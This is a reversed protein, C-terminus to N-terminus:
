SEDQKDNLAGPAGQSEGDITKKLEELTQLLLHFQKARLEVRTKFVEHEQSLADNEEMLLKIKRELSIRSEMANIQKAVNEYEERYAKQKTEIKLQRKAEEIDMLTKGKEIEIDKMIEHYEELEKDCTRAIAAGKGIHFELYALSLLFTSCSKECEEVSKDLSNVFTFFSKTTSSLKATHDQMLLRQRLVSDPTKDDDPTVRAPATAGSAANAARKREQM